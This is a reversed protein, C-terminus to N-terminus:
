TCFAPKPRQQCGAAAAAAGVKVALQWLPHVTPDACDRPVVRSFLVRVGALIRRRSAQLLPRVDAASADGAGQPCCTLRCTLNMKHAM